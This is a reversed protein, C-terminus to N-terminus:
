PTVCPGHGRGRSGDVRGGPFGWRPALDPHKIVLPLRDGEGTMRPQTGTEAFIMLPRRAVLAVADVVVDDVRTGVAYVLGGHDVAVEIEAPVEASRPGHIFAGNCASPSLGRGLRQRV